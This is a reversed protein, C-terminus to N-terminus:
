QNRTEKEDNKEKYYGGINGQVKEYKMYVVTSLKKLFGSSTVQRRVIRKHNGM